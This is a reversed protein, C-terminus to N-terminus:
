QGSTWVEGRRPRLSPLVSKEPRGEKEKKRGPMPADGHGLRQVCGVFLGTNRDKEAISVLFEQAPAVYQQAGMLDFVQGEGHRRRCGRGQADKDGDRGPDGTQVIRLHSGPLPRGAAARQQLFGVPEVGVRDVRVEVRVGPIQEIGSSGEELVGAQLDLALFPGPDVLQDEAARLAVVEGPEARVGVGVRLRHGALLGQPMQEDVVVVAGGALTGLAGDVAYALTAGFGPRQAGREGKVRQAAGQVFGEEGTQGFRVLVPGAGVIVARPFLGFQGVRQRWGWRHGPGSPEQGAAGPVCDEEDGGRVALLDGVGIQGPGGLASERGSVGEEDVVDIRCLGDGVPVPGAARVGVTGQPPVQVGQQEGTVFFGADLAGFGEGGEVVQRGVQAGLETDAHVAEVLVALGGVAGPVRGQGRRDPGPHLLVIRRRGLADGFAALGGLLDALVEVGDALGGPAM